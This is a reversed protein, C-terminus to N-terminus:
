LIPPPRVTLSILTFCQPSCAEEALSLFRVVEIPVCATTFAVQQHSLIPGDLSDSADDEEVDLANHPDLIIFSAGASSVDYFTPLLVLLIAFFLSLSPSIQRPQTLLDLKM